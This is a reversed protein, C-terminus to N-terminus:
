ANGRKEGLLVSAQLASYLLFLHSASYATM